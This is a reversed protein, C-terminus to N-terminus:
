DDLHIVISIFYEKCVGYFGFLVASLRSKEQIQIIILWGNSCFLSYYYDSSM